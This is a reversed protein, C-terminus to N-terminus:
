EQAVEEKPQPLFFTLICGALYVFIVVFGAAFAIKGFRDLGSFLMVPVLIAALFQGSTGLMRGGINAAFSEGTGRLHTPYVRPLYNGWFSFQAITLFGAVFVGAKLWEANQEPHGPFLLGAAPLFYVLPILILGPVQFLWLLLRRSVIITALFALVFRGVLGGIEQYMQIGGITEEMETTANVTKTRLEEQKAPSDVAALATAYQKKAIGAAKKADADAPAAEAKAAAKAAKDKLEALKSRTRRPKM